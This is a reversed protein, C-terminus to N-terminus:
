HNKKRRCFLKRQVNLQVEINLSLFVHFCWACSALRAIEIVCFLSGSSQQPISKLVSLKGNRSGVNIPKHNKVCRNAVRDVKTNYNELWIRSCIWHFEQVSSRLSNDHIGRAPYLWDNGWFLWSLIRQRIFASQSLSIPRRAIFKMLGVCKM